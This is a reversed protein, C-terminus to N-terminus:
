ALISNTVRSTDMLTNIMENWMEMNRQAGIVYFRHLKPNSVTYDEILEDSM